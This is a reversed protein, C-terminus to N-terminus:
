AGMSREAASEAEFEAQLRSEQRKLVLERKECFSLKEFIPIKIRGLSRCRHCPVDYDGAKYSERDQQDMENWESSTIGNSFAPHDVKGHGECSPCIEWRYKDRDM